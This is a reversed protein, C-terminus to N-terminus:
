REPYQFLSGHAIFSCERQKLATRNQEEFATDNEGMAWNLCYQAEGEKQYAKSDFWHKYDSSSIWRQLSKIVFDFTVFREFWIQQLEDSTATMWIAFIDAFLREKRRETFGKKLRWPTIQSTNTILYTVLITTQIICHETPGLIWAISRIFRSKSKPNKLMMCDTACFTTRATRFKSVAKATISEALVCLKWPRLFGFPSLVTWVKCHKRKQGEVNHSWTAKQMSPSM